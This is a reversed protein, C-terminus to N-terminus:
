EVLTDILTEEQYLSYNYNRIYVDRIDNSIIGAVNLEITREKVFRDFERLKNVVAYEVSRLLRLLALSKGFDEDFVDGGEVNVTAQGVFKSKITFDFGLNALKKIKKSEALFNECDCVYAVVKGKEANVSFQVRKILKDM